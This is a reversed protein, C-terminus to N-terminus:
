YKPLTKYEKSDIIEFDQNWNHFPLISNWRGHLKRLELGDKSIGMIKYFSFKNKYQKLGDLIGFGGLRIYKNINDNIIEETIM